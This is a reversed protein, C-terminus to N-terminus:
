GEALKLFSLWPMPYVHNAMIWSGIFFICWSIVSSYAAGIAGYTSILIYSMILNFIGTSLTLISLLYTKKKYSIYNTFIFYMGNLAFAISLWFVYDMSDWYRANIFIKFIIPVALYFVCWCIIISLFLMYSYKVIEKKKTATPNKLNKFLYPMWVQNISTFIIILISAVQFGVTYMGAAGIGVIKTILFRDALMMLSAGIVHPILPVGFKIADKIHHRNIKSILYGMKRLLVTGFMFFFLYSLFIGYLRGVWGQHLCIIFFLSLTFNLLTQSIQFTGYKIPDEKARYLTLVVLSIIEVFALIPVFLIWQFPINIVPSLFIGLPIFFLTICIVMVIPILLTSSIYAAMDTRDIRFYAVGIAAHINLHIFPLAFIIMIQILTLQGYESPSLYQTLVPLLFFPIASNLITSFTYISFNRFFLFKSRVM